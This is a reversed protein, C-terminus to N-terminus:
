KCNRDLIGQITEVQEATLPAQGEGCRAYSETLNVGYGDGFETNVTFEPLCRCVSNPDYALNIVIDTLRVSDDGWFSYTEGDLIVETVTNGCYGSVPDPVTQPEAAPDHDFSCVSWGLNELAELAEKPVDSLDGEELLKYDYVEAQAPFTEAIASHTVWVRSGNGCDCFADCIETTLVVPEGDATVLLTKIDGETNWLTLFRGETETPEPEEVPAACSALLFVFLMCLFIGFRKM